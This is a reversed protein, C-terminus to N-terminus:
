SPAIAIRFLQKATWDCCIGGLTFHCCYKRLQSLITFRHFAGLGLNVEGFFAPARAWCYLFSDLSGIGVRRLNRAVAAQVM